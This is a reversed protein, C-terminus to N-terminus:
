GFCLEAQQPAVEEVVSGKGKPKRLASSILHTKMESTCFRM